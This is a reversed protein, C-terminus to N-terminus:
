SDITITVHMVAGRIAVDELCASMFTGTDGMDDNPCSVAGFKAVIAEADAHSPLTSCDQSFVELKADGMCAHRNQLSQAATALEFVDWEGVPRGDRKWTLIPAGDLKTDLFDHVHIEEISAMDPGFVDKYEFHFRYGEIREHKMREGSTIVIHDATM